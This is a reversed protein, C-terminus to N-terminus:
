ATKSKKYSSYFNFFLLLNILNNLFVGASYILVNNCFIFSQLGIVMMFTIHAMQIITIWKKFTQLRRQISGFTSLFYYSYMIVHVSCNLMAMTMIFGQIFYRLGSWLFFVTSVHHYTHLFSIQQDKKRLVFCITESLDVIKLLLGWWMIELQKETNRGCIKDLSECYRWVSAFPKGGTVINFVIWFNAIVQFINYCQMFTKLSYPRRNKMFLPGAFYVICLYVLSIYILPMPSPVLTWKITRADTFNAIESIYHSKLQDM